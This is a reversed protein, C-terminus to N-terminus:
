RCSNLRRFERMTMRYRRKFLRKPYNPSSWGCEFTIKEIPENTAILRRCVEALQREVVAENISTKQLERFRRDALARSVRLHRVVDIASIGECAHKSIYALARQVLHGAHSVQATSQRNAISKVGCRVTRVAISKGSMMEDLIKAAQFGEEEFDPRISSLPPITHECILTNDDVGLVSVKDPVRLRHARCAELVERAREDCTVFVGCPRELRAIAAAVENGSAEGDIEATPLGIDAIRRRFAAAREVSWRLMGASHVVAYSRYIGQSMLFGAAARGIGDYDNRVFAIGRKRAELDPAQVDMVVTPVGSDAVIRVADDAGPISIIFGDAGNEVAAHVREATLDELTGVLTVSWDRREGLYRYIGALKGVGPAGAM